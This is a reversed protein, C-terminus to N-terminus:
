DPHIMIDMTEDFEDAFPDPPGADEVVNEGCLCVDRDIVAIALPHLHEGACPGAVCLGTEVDLMAGHRGCRLLARDATFFEGDGFNLWTGDHPCANSYGLYENTHTRVVVIPFPRMDGSQEVRFLSFAKAGGREIADASCVAFVQLEEANM